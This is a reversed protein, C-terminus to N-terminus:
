GRARRDRRLLAERDAYPMARWAEPSVGQRGAAEVGRQSVAALTAFLGPLVQEAVDLLALARNTEASV